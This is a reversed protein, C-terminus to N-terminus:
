GPYGPYPLYPVTSRRILRNKHIEGLYKGSQDVVVSNKWPLWGIWDGDKSFVYKDAPSRRFAVWNGSSDFLHQVAMQISARDGPRSEGFHAAFRSHFNAGVERFDGLCYSALALM